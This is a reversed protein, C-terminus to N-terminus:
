ADGGRLQAYSRAVDRISPFILDPRQEPPYAEPTPTEAVGTLVLIALCKGRRAMAIDTEPRDGVVACKAAPVGATSLALNLLYLNPKGLVISPEVRTCAALGSVMAASGPLYGWEMPLSADTNTAIFRAGARIHRFATTLKAYNFQRDLGVIVADCSAADEGVVDLGAERCEVLLGEEGVVYVRTLDHASAHRAACYSTTLVERADVVVGMQALRRALAQRSKTSNNTPFVIQAGVRRLTSLATAAGPIPTEGRVVVGDVDVLFLDIASLATADVPKV